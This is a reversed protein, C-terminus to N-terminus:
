KENRLARNEASMFKIIKETVKASKILEDNLQQLKKIKIGQDHIVKQHELNVRNAEGFETQTITEIKQIELESGESAYIFVENTVVEDNLELSGEKNFPAGYLKIGRM